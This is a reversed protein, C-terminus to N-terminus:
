HVSRGARWARSKAVPITVASRTEIELVASLDREPRSNVAHLARSTKLLRSKAATLKLSRVFVVSAIEIEALLGLRSTLKWFRALERPIVNCFALANFTGNSSVRVPLRFRECFLKRLKEAGLRERTTSTNMVLLERRPLRTKGSRGSILPSKNIVLLLRKPAIENGLSSLTVPFTLKVPCNELHSTCAEDYFVEQDERLASKGTSELTWPSAMTSVLILLLVIQSCNLLVPAPVQVVPVSGGSSTEMSVDILLVLVSLPLLSVLPVGELPPLLPFVLLEPLPIEPAAM